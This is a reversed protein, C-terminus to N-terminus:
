KVCLGLGGGLGGVSTCTGYSVGGVNCDGDAAFRGDPNTGPTFGSPKSLWCFLYCQSTAGAADGGSTLKTCLQSEGCDNAYECPIGPKASLGGDKAPESCKFSDPEENFLCVQGSPCDYKFPNCKSSYTCAYHITSDDSATISLNCAGGAGCLSNDGPCCAPTCKGSYCFLGRDCDGQTSCSEGKTATGIPLKGCVAKKAADDFVCTETPDACDQALMNCEDAPRPSWKSCTIPGTETGTDTPPTGTDIPASSDDPTSSDEVPDGTDTTGGSDTAGSDKTSASGTDKEPSSCGVSLAAAVFVWSLARSPGM